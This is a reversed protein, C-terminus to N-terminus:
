KGSKAVKFVWLVRRPARGPGLRAGHHVGGQTGRLWSRSFLGLIRQYLYCVYSYVTSIPVAIKRSFSLLLGRLSVVRARGLGGEAFDPSALLTLVRRAFLM